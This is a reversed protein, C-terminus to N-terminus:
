LTGNDRDRNVQNTVDVTGTKNAKKLSRSPAAMKAAKAGQLTDAPHKERSTKHIQIHLLPKLVRKFHM